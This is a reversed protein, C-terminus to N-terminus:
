NSNINEKNYQGVTSCSKTESVLPEVKVIVDLCHLQIAQNIHEFINQIEDISSNSAHLFRKGQEILNQEREIASLKSEVTSKLTTIITNLEHRVNDLRQKNQKIIEVHEILHNLCVLQLCCHCKYLEKTSNNCTIDACLGIDSM